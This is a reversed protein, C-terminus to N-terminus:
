VGKIEFSMKQVKVLAKLKLTTIHVRPKRGFSFFIVNAINFFSNIFELVVCQTKALFVLVDVCFRFFFRFDNSFYPVTRAGNYDTAQINIRGNIVGNKFVMEKNHKRFFEPDKQLM